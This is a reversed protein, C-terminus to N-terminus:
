SNYCLTVFGGKECSMTHQTDFKEGCPCRTPINAKYDTSQSIINDVIDKTLLSSAKYESETNLYPTTVAMGGLQILLAILQRLLDSVSSEGIIVPIFHNTLVNEFIKMQNQMSLLQFLAISSTANVKSVM